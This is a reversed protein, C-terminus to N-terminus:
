NAMVCFLFRQLIVNTGSPGCLSTQTSVYLSNIQKDVSSTIGPYSMTNLEGLPHTEGVTLNKQLRTLKIQSSANKKQLLFGLLEDPIYDANIRGASM